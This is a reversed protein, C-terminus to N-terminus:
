WLTPSPGHVDIPAKGEEGDMHWMHKCPWAWDMTSNSRKASWSGGWLAEPVPPYTLGRVCIPHEIVDGIASDPVRAAYRRGEMVGPFPSDHLLHADDEDAGAWDKGPRRPETCKNGPNRCQKQTHPAPPPRQVSPPRLMPM